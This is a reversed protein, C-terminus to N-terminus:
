AQISGGDAGRLAVPDFAGEDSSTHIYWPRASERCPRRRGPLKDIKGRFWPGGRERTSKTHFQFAMGGEAKLALILNFFM